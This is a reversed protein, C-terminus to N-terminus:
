DSAALTINAALKSVTEDPGRFTGLAGGKRNFGLTEEQNQYPFYTGAVKRPSSSTTEFSMGGHKSWKSHAALPPAKAESLDTAALSEENRGTLQPSLWLPPTAAASWIEIAVSAEAGRVTFERTKLCGRIARAM